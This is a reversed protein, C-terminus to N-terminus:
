RSLKCSFLTSPQASNGFPGWRIQVRDLVEALQSHILGIKRPFDGKDGRSEAIYREHLVQLITAMRLDRVDYVSSSQRAVINEDISFRRKLDWSVEEIQPSLTSVLFAVGTLGSAPCPPQGVGIDKHLRRLTVVNGAVTDIALLSGGGPFNSKPATLQIVQCGTVGNSQFNVSVSSLSWPPGVSLVGDAGSAMQQWLPCLTAFDGGARVAIDEDTAYVPATQPPLNSM